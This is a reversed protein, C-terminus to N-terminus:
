INARIFEYGKQALDDDSAAFTRWLHLPGAFSPTGMNFAEITLYRDYGGRKLAAFLEKPVAHGTGPIGRDNESIHIHKITPLAAEISKAVDLEEINTHMTDVLLGANGCGLEDIFRVAESLTNCLYMEFRNLPEYAVTIGMTNAYECFQRGTELSWNWEDRTPRSGSFYGLSQFFPGSIISSGLAATKDVCQKFEDVSKERMAKDPSIPNGNMSLVTISTTELGISKAYDGFRKADEKPMLGVHLEIGDFGIQKIKDVIPRHTDFKPEDTWLLLNMGIKM